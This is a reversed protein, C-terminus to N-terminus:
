FAGTLAFNKVLTFASVSNKQHFLSIRNIHLPSSLEDAFFNQLKPLARSLKDRDLRDTLTMHFRFEDLVYPYGWLGLLQKQNDSLNQQLRSHIEDDTLPARFPDLDQVCQSALKQLQPCTQSPTLAIFHGLKRVELPSCYFAATRSALTALKKELEALSFRNNLRFPPKLTAHFGYRSAKTVPLTLRALKDPITRELRSNVTSNQSHYVCHGLWAAGKKYLAHDEPFTFYVAYRDPHIEM